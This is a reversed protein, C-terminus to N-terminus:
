GSVRLRQGPRIVNDHPAMRNLRRLEDVSLEHQLAVRYLTENPKVVHHKVAPDATKPKSVAAVKPTAAAETAAAAIAKPKTVAAAPQTVVTPKPAASPKPATQAVLVPRPRPQGAVRALSGEPLWVTSGVPLAAKGSQVPPRWALNLASLREVSLGYHEAVDAALLRDRLVLRDENMPQYPRLGDPFYREPHSAVDRAALFSAYFNRSSFGFAKGKYHRVITGIDDGYLARAKEMGGVGHNYSTIALPWSGLRRYAGALYRAAADAAVVPDLREDVASTVMMYERGTAPMFQWVGAAGVASRANLQYSSEVHPLYAIDEPVGHNRMIDRFVTEYRGSIELGRRFRERLGRQARVRDSAGRIAARGGAAVLKDQLAREERSLSRGSAIKSELAQLRWQYHAKRAQVLQQQSPTYGGFIEGPLEVVEYVAGLYEDDHIAVDGRGWVAYVNRWFGVNDAIAPSQPLTGGSEGGDRYSETSACGGLLLLVATLALVHRWAGKSM